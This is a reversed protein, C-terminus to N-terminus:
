REGLIFGFTGLEALSEPRFGLDVLGLDRAGEGSFARGGGYLVTVRGSGQQEGRNAEGPAGVSLDLRGDRNHDLLAFSWGFADGKENSGPVGRVDQHIVRNGRRAIGRRHGYLLTVGGAEGSFLSDAVALDDKRDRDIRGIEVSNGFGAGKKKRGPVGPTNRDIRYWYRLEGAVWRYVDLTGGSDYDGGVGLVVERDRTGSIDGIAVDTIYGSPQIDSCKGPGRATGACVYTPGLRYSYFLEVHGDRDLDGFAIDDAYGPFAASSETELGDESGRLVIVRAPNTEQTELSQSSVSLALDSLGDGDADGAAIADIRTDFANWNTSRSTDLGNRSGYYVFAGSTAFGSVALDAFGDGDFDGSDLQRAWGRSSALPGEIVTRSTTLGRSNAHVDIVAGRDTGGRSWDPIGVVLDQTGNGDFDYPAVAGQAAAPLAGALVAITLVLAAGGRM